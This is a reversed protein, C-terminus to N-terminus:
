EVYIEPQPVSLYCWYALSTGKLDLEPLCEVSGSVIIYQGLTLVFHWVAIIATHLQSIWGCTRFPIFPDILVDFDELPEAYM